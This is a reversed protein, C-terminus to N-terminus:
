LVAKMPAMLAQPSLANDAKDISTEPDEEGPKVLQRVRLHYVDIWNSLHIEKVTVKYVSHVVSYFM